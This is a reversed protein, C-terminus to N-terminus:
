FKNPLNNAPRPWFKVLSQDLLQVMCILLNWHRHGHKSVKENWPICTDLATEIHKPRQVSIDLVYAAQCHRKVCEYDTHQCATDLSEEMFICKKIVAFSYMEVQIVGGMDPWALCVKLVPATQFACRSHTIANLSGSYWFLFLNPKQVMANVINRAWAKLKEPQWAEPNVPKTHLTKTSKIWWIKTSNLWTEAEPVVFMNWLYVGQPVSRRSFCFREKLWGFHLSM